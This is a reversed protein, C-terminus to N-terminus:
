EAIRVDACVEEVAHLLERPFSLHCTSVPVAEGPVDGIVLSIECVRSCVRVQLLPARFQLLRPLHCGTVHKVHGGRRHHHLDNGLQQGTRPQIPIAGTNHHFLRDPM